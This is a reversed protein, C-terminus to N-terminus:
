LLLLLSSILDGMRIKVTINKYQILRLYYNCVTANPSAVM